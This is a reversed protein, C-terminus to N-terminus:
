LGFFPKWYPISKLPVCPGLRAISEVKIEKKVEHGAQWEIDLRNEGDSM